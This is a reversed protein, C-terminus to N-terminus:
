RLSSLEARRFGKVWDMAAEGARIREKATLLQNLEEEMSTWFPDVTPREMAPGVEVLRAAELWLRAKRPEVPMGTGFLYNRATQRLADPNGHKAEQWIMPATGVWSALISSQDEPNLTGEDAVGRRCRDERIAEGLLKKAASRAAEELERKRRGFGFM